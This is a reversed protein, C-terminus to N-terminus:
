VHEGQFGSFRLVCADSKFDPECNARQRTEKNYTREQVAPVAGCGTQVAEGNEVICTSHIHLIYISKTYAKLKSNKAFKSALWWRKWFM